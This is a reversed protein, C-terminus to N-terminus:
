NILYPKYKNYIEEGILPEKFEASLHYEEPKYQERIMIIADNITQWNILTKTLNSYERYSDRHKDQLALYQLILAFTPPNVKNEPLGIIPALNEFVEFNKLIPIVLMKTDTLVAKELTEMIESVRNLISFNSLNYAKFLSLLKLGLEHESLTELEKQYNKLAEKGEASKVETLALELYEQVKKNFDEQSLEQNLLNVINEYFEQQKGGRYRLETQDIALFSNKSKIAVELLDTSPKLGEYNGENKLFYSRIKLFFLFDQSNFKESDQTKAVFAINKLDTFYTKHLNIAEDPITLKNGKLILELLSHPGLLPRNWWPQESAPIKLLEQQKEKSILLQVLIIRLLFLSGVGAVGGGLIIGLTLMWPPSTEETTLQASKEGKLVNLKKNIDEQSKRKQQDLQKLDELEHTQAILDSNQALCNESFGLGVVSVSAIVLM